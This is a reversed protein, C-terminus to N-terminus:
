KGRDYDEAAVTVVELDRTAREAEAILAASFLTLGWIGNDRLRFPYRTGRVTVVSAREGELEVKAVGSLDRRLQGVWGRQKALLAFADAGDSVDGLPAYAKLLDEGQGKPYSSRIRACAKARTDRITHAAWQADTELFPFMDRVRDQDISQAIRLYAGDPTRESPFPRHAAMTAGVLAAVAGVVLVVWTGIRV